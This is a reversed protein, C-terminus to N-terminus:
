SGGSGWMIILGIFILLMAPILLIVGVVNSVVAGAPSKEKKAARGASLAGALLLLGFLLMILGVTM